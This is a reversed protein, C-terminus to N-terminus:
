KLKELILLNSVKLLKIAACMVNILLTFTIILSIANLLRNSIFMTILYLFVSLISILIVCLVLAKFDIVAENYDLKKINESKSFVLLVNTFSM